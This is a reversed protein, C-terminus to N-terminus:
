VKPDIRFIGNRFCFEKPLVVDKKIRSKINQLFLKEIECIINNVTKTKSKHIKWFMATM